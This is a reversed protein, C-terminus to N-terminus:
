LSEADHSQFFCCRRRFSCMKQICTQSDHCCQRLETTDWALSANNTTTIQRLVKGLLRILAEESGSKAKAISMKERQLKKLQRHLNREASSHQEELYCERSGVSERLLDRETEWDRNTDELQQDRKNVEDYLRIVEAKQKELQDKLRKIEEQSELDTRKLKIHGLEIRAREDHEKAERLDNQM